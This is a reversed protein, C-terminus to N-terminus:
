QFTAEGATVEGLDARHPGHRLVQVVAVLARVTLSAFGIAPVIFLWSMPMGMAPSSLRAQTQVLNVAEACGGVGVAAVVLLAFVQIGTLLRDSRLGDVLQLTIHDGRTLLVGLVSFTMWVMSFRALEGSWSLTAWPSYRQAAQIFVMTFILTLALCGLAIEFRGFWATWAPARGTHPPDALPTEPM